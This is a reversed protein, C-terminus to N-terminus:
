GPRAVKAAKKALFDRVRAKAEPTTQATSAMLAETLYGIHPDAEAIRPLAHIVAFRTMDAIGAAKRALDMAFALGAGDEVLYQCAGAARAEEASLSRGTLMMDQVLPTGILRPIRVSGGGGLFIGRQGEPLAFFASREAVRIHTAAALEFGGGVVAGHLVSIVPVRGYQIDQFARHWGLSHQIAAALDPEGDVEGLDLGACFHEGEGHIVVARIEAPLSSVARSLGSVMTENLANRKAPRSLRIVAVAGEAHVSLGPCPSLVSLPAVGM